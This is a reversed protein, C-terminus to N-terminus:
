GGNRYPLRQFGSANRHHNQFLFARALCAFISQEILSVVPAM